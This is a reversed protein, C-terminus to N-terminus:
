NKKRDIFVTEEEVGPFPFGVRKGKLARFSKTNFPGLLLGSPRLYYDRQLIFDRGAQIKGSKIDQVRKDMLAADKLFEKALLEQDESKKFKGKSRSKKAQEQKTLAAYRKVGATETAVDIARKTEQKQLKESGEVKAYRAKGAETLTGDENQFRRVGWKMGLIGHHSLYEGYEM